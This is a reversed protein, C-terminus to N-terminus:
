GAKRTAIGAGLRALAERLGEDQVDCFRERAQALAAADPEFSRRPADRNRELPGQRFSLRGVCRWGYHANVREVILPALHQLELAFAGEVRVILTAPEPADDPAGAPRRPFQMKVPECFAALREGVIEPWAVIIDTSAFGKAALVPAICQGVLDALPRLRPKKVPGRSAPRQSRACEKRPQPSAKSRQGM